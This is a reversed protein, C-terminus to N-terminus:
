NKLASKFGFEYGAMFFGLKEGYKTDYEAFNTEKFLKYAKLQEEKDFVKDSKDEAENISNM